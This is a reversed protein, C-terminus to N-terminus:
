DVFGPIVSAGDADIREDAPPATKKTGVWSVKGDTYILAANSLTGLEPDNTVLQGINTILTSSM